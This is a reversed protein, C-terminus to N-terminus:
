LAYAGVDIAGSRAKAHFCQAVGGISKIYDYDISYLWWSQVDTGTPATKTICKPDFGIDEAPAETTTGKGIITSASSKLHYDPNTGAADVWFDITGTNNTVNSGSTAGTSGFIAQTDGGKGTAM